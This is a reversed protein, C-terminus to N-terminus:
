PKEQLITKPISEGVCLWFVPAAEFRRNKVDSVCWLSTARTSLASTLSRRKQAPAHDALLGNMKAYRRQAAPEAHIM